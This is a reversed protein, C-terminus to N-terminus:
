IDMQIKHVLTLVVAVPHFGLQLLYYYYYYKSPFNASSQSLTCQKWSAIHKMNNKLTYITQELVIMGQFVIQV